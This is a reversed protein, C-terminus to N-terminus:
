YDRKETIRASKGVKDRLYYLKSRRVIGKREVKVSEIMPSNVPFVREVGQGFTVRRVTFTEAIGAGKKAIVVGSFAQIRTNTGETIKVNVKVTDGVNFDAVDERVNERSIKELLNM